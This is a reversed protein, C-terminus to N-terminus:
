KVNINGKLERIREWILRSKDEMGSNYCIAYLQKLAAINTETYIFQTVEGTNSIDM